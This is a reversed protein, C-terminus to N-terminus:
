CHPTLLVYARRANPARATPAAAIPRVARLVFVNLLLTEDSTPKWMTLKSRFQEPTLETAPTVGAAVGRFSTKESVGTTLSAADSKSSTPPCCSTGGGRIIDPPKPEHYRGFTSEATVANGGKDAALPFVSELSCFCFRFSSWPHSSNKRLPVVPSFTGTGASTVCPQFSPATASTIACVSSTGASCIWNDQFPLNRSEELVSM